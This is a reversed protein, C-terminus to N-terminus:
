RRRDSSVLKALLSFPDFGLLSKLDRDFVTIAQMRELAPGLVGDAQIWSGAGVRDALERLTAVAARGVDMGLPVAVAGIVPSLVVDRTAVAAAWAGPMSRQILKQLTSYEAYCGIALPGLRQEVARALHRYDRRWDGSLLGMESRLEGPGLLTDFGPGARRVALCTELEGHEFAAILLVKGDPCLADLAKVIVRETPVPWQHIRWPWTAIAGEAEAERLVAFLELAQALYDHDPRVRLAFREAIDELAGVTLDAAWRAGWREALVSLEMPWSIGAPDCRGRETHVLKRLRTGSTLAVIGGSRESPLRERRVLQLLRIWESATFGEVHVDETLM